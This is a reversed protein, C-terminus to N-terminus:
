HVQQRAAELAAAWLRPIANIGPTEQAWMQVHGQREALAEQAGRVAEELNGRVLDPWEQAPLTGM